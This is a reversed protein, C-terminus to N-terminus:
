HTHSLRATNEVVVLPFDQICGTMLAAYNHRNALMTGGVKEHIFTHRGLTSCPM